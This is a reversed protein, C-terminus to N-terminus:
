PTHHDQGDGDAPRVFTGHPRAPVSGILAGAAFHNWALGLVVVVAVVLCAAGLHRLFRV